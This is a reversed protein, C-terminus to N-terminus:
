GERKFGYYDNEFSLVIALWQLFKQPIEGNASLPSDIKTIFNCHKAHYGCWLTLYKLPIQV